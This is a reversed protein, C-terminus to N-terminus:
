ITYQKFIYPIHNEICKSFLICIFPLFFTLSQIEFEDLRSVAMVVYVSRKYFMYVDLMFIIFCEVFAQKAVSLLLLLFQILSFSDQMM